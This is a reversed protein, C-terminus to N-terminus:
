LLNKICNAFYLAIEMYVKQRRKAYMFLSWYYWEFFRLNRIELVKRHKESSYKDAFYSRLFVTQKEYSELYNEGIVSALDSYPHNLMAFEWDILFARDERFLINFEIIDNHCLVFDEEHYWSQVASTLSQQLEEELYHKSHVGNKYFEIREFLHFSELKADKIKHLKQLESAVFGLERDSMLTKYHYCNPIFKSIKTGTLANYFLVEESIDFPRILDIVLNEINPSNFIDLKHMRERYVFSSNILFVKNSIGYTIPETQVINSNTINRFLQKNMTTIIADTKTM